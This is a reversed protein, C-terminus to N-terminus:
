VHERQFRSLGSTIQSVEERTLSTTTTLPRYGGFSSTVALTAGDPTRQINLAIHNTVDSINPNPGQSRLHKIITEITGYSTYFPTVSEPQDGVRDEFLNLIIIRDEADHFATIVFNEGRKIKFVEPLFFGPNNKTEPFYRGNRKEIGM